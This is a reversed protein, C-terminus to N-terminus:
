AMGGVAAIPPACRLHPIDPYGAKFAVARHVDLEPELCDILKEIRSVRRWQGVPFERLEGFLM